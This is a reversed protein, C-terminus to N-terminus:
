SCTQNITLETSVLKSVWPGSAPGDYVGLASTHTGAACAGEYNNVIPVTVTGIFGDPLRSSSGHFFSGSSPFALSVTIIGTSPPTPLHVTVSGQCDYMGAIYGRVSSRCAALHWATVSASAAVPPNVPTINNTVHNQNSLIGIAVLIATAAVALVGIATLVGQVGSAKAPPAPAPPAPAPPPPPPPLPSPPYLDLGEMSNIPHGFGDDLAFVNALDANSIGAGVSCAVFDYAFRASDSPEYGGGVFTLFAQAIEPIECAAEVAEVFAVGEPGLLLSYGQKVLASKLKPTLYPGLKALFDQSSALFSEKSAFRELVPLWGKGILCSTVKSSHTEYDDPDLRLTPTPVHIDSLRGLPRPPSAPALLAPTDSTLSPLDPPGSTSAPPHPVTPASLNYGCADCFRAETGQAM